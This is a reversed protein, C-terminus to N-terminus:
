VRKGSVMVTGKLHEATNTNSIKDRSSLEQLGLGGGHPKM